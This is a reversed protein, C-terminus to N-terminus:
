WVASLGFRCRLSGLLISFFSLCSLRFGEVGVFGWPFEECDGGKM